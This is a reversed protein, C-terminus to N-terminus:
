AATRQLRQELVKGCEELVAELQAKEQELRAKAVEDGVLAVLGPSDVGGGTPALACLLVLGVEAFGSSRLASFSAAEANSGVRSGYM